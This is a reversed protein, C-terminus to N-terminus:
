KRDFFPSKGKVSLPIGFIIKTEEGMLKLNLAARGVSFMVRNDVRHDAAVGVASGVALGLDHANFACRGGAELNAACNAFGCFGCYSLGLPQVKTGILVVVPASDVNGADREFFAVGTETQAIRRMEDTLAKKDAADALIATVINDVGRAKPATRAAVLMLEAVQQLGNKEAIDSGVMM